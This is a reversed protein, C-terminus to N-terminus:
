WRPTFPEYRPREGRLFTAVSSAQSRIINRLLQGREQYQIREDLRNYFASSAIRMGEKTMRCDEQFHDHSMTRALSVVVRDVVLPRFEEMMDYVLKEQGSRDAHLFGAYPDLGAYLAAAWVEQELVYYGFNLLSNIPDGAAPYKRGPFSWVDPILRSWTLWYIESANGEMGMILDRADDLGGEVSDLQPIIAEIQSSSDRFEQWLDKREDKWKKAFSKLLSAQNKLKGRIFAKALELGREDDYARYQERRTRVTGGLTAPILRALPKGYYSAFVIEVGLENAMEIADSSVSIGSGLVLIQDVKRAPILIDPEDRRLVRFQEGTKGLFTGRDSLIIRPM